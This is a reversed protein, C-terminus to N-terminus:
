ALQTQSHVSPCMIRTAKPHSILVLIFIHEACIYVCLENQTCNQLSSKENLM